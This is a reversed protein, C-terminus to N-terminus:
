VRDELLEKIYKAKLHELFHYVMVKWNMFQRQHKKVCIHLLMKIEWGIQDKLLIMHMGINIINQIGDGIM